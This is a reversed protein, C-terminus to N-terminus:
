LPKSGSHSIRRAERGSLNQPPRGPLYLTTQDGERIVSMRHYKVTVPWPFPNFDRVILEGPALIEVGVIRLFLNPSPLGWLHDREGMGVGGDAQYFQRFSHELKLNQTVASMLRSFLEAAETRYGYRLLGEIVMGNWPLAM